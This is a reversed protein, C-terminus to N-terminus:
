KKFSNIYMNFVEGGDPISEESIFYQLDNNVYARIYLNFVSIFVLVFFLGVIVTDFWNNKEKVIEVEKMYIELTNQYTHYTRSIYM